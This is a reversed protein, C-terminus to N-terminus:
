GTGLMTGTALSVATFLIPLPEGRKFDMSSFSGNHTLLVIFSRLFFSSHAFIKKNYWFPQILKQNEGLFTPLYKVRLESRRHVVLGFAPGCTATFPSYSVVETARCHGLSHQHMPVSPSCTRSAETMMWGTMNVSSRRHASFQNPLLSGSWPRVM